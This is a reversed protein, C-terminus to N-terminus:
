ITYPKGPQINTLVQRGKEFIRIVNPAKGTDDQINWGGKYASLNHKAILTFLAYLADSRNEYGQRTGCVYRGKNIWAFEFQNQNNKFLHWM